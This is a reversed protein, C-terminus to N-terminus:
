HLRTSCDIKYIQILSTRVLASSTEMRRVEQEPVSHSQHIRLGREVVIPEMLMQGVREVAMLMQGVRQIQGVPVRGLPLITQLLPLQHIQGVPALALPLITQVAAAVAVVVM